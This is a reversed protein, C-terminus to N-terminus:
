VIDTQMTKFRKLDHFTEIAFANSENQLSIGKQVFKLFEEISKDKGEVEVEIQQQENLICYGKLGLEIAKQKIFFRYGKDKVNGLFIIHLRKAMPYGGKNQRYKVM